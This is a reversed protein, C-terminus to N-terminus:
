RGSSPVRTRCHATRAGTSNRVIPARALIRSRNPFRAIAHVSLFRQGKEVPGVPPAALQPQGADPLQHAQQSIRLSIQTKDMHRAGVSFAGDRRHEGGNEGSGPVPRPQVGGRMQEPVVLPDLHIPRFDGVPVEAQGCLRDTGARFLHRVRGRFELPQRGHREPVKLPDPAPDDHQLHSQAAPQVRRVDDVGRLGRDDGLQAQLVGPLQPACEAPDGPLLAADELGAAGGDEAPLLRLRLLHDPLRAPAQAYRQHDCLLDARRAAAPVALHQVVPLPPADSQPQQATVLAPIGGRRQVRHIYQVGPSKGDRFLSDAPSQGAYGPGPAEGQQPPIGPDDHVAGVVWVARCLQRVAQPLIERPLLDGKHDADHGVLVARADEPRRGGRARPNKVTVGAEGLAMFEPARASNIRPRKWTIATSASVTERPIRSARPAAPCPGTQTM